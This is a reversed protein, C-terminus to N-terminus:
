LPIAITYRLWLMLVALCMDFLDRLSGFVSLHFGSM